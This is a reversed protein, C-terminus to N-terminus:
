SEGTKRAGVLGPARPKDAAFPAELASAQRDFHAALDLLYYETRSSRKALARCTEAQQRYYTSDAM